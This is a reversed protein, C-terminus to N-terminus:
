LEKMNLKKKLDIYDKYNPDIEKTELDKVSPIKGKSSKKPPKKPM